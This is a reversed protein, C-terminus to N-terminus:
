AGEPEPLKTGCRPCYPGYSNGILLGDARKVNWSNGALPQRVLVVGTKCEHRNPDRAPNPPSCKPCAHDAPNSCSVWKPDDTLAGAWWKAGCDTCRHKGGNRLEIAM